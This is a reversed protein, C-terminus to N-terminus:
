LDLRDKQISAAVAKALAQSGIESYHTGDAVQLRDVGLEVVVAHLDNVEVGADQMVRKAVQNYQRVDAEHRQYNARHKAHLEDRVPTTTAFIIRAKTERQLRHVIQRLNAEYQEIPVQHQGTKKLVRLDHLGCNFHVISPRHSIASEDLKALLAASDSGFNDDSIVIAKDRLL